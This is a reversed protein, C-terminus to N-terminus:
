ASRARRTQEAKDRMREAYTRGASDVTSTQAIEAFKASARESLTIETEIAEDAPRRRNSM